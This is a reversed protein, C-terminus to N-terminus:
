VSGPVFGLKAKAQEDTSSEGNLQRTIIVRCRDFSCCLLTWHSNLAVRATMATNIVLDICVALSEM